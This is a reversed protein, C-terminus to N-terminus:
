MESAKYFFVFFQNKNMGHINCANGHDKGKTERVHQTIMRVIPLNNVNVTSRFTSM